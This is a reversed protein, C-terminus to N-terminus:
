TRPNSSELYVAAGLRDLRALGHDLLRAGLGQGRAVPDAAVLELSWNDGDPRLAACAAMQDLLGALREPDVDGDILDLLGQYDVKLGPPYWVAVAMMAGCVLVTGAELAPRCVTRAYARHCRFFQAADPFVWRATPDDCFGLDLIAAVDELESVRAARITRDM